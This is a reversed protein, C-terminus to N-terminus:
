TCAVKTVVPQGSLRVEVCRKTNTSSASFSFKPSEGPALRGNSRFTVVAPGSGITIGNMAPHEELNGAASAVVWGGAWSGTPTITVDLNQKIAESRARALSTILDASATQVRQSAIMETFAPAALMILIVLVTIAAVLEILTFGRGRMPSRLPPRDIPLSSM